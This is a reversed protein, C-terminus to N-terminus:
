LRLFVYAGTTIVVLAAALGTWQWAAAGRASPAMAAPTPTTAQRLQGAIELWVHPPPDIPGLSQASRRLQEFDRVLGACRDCGRVHAVVADRDVADLAGDVLDGLRPQIDECITM